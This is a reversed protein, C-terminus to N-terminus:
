PQCRREHVARTAVAERGSVDPRRPEQV